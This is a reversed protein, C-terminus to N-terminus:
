RRGQAGEHSKGQRTEARNELVNWQAFLELVEPDGPRRQGMRIPIKKKAVREVAAVVDLVSFGHGYGCNLV